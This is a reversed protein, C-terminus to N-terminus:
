CAQYQSRVPNTSKSGHQPHKRYGYWVSQRLLLPRRYNSITNVYQVGLNQPDSSPIGSLLLGGVGVSPSRGGMVTLNMAQLPGYVEKWRLGPGVAAQSKDASLQLTTLNGLDITVGGEINNAGEFASHRLLSDACEDQGCEDLCDFMGEVEFLM